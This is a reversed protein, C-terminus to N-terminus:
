WVAGFKQFARKETDPGTPSLKGVGTRPCDPPSQLLETTALHFWTDMSLKAMFDDVRWKWVLEVTRSNVGARVKFLARIELEGEFVRHAERERYMNLMHIFM